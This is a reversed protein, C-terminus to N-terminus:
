KLTLLGLLVQHENFRSQDRAVVDALVLAPFGVLGLSRPAPIAAERLAGDRGRRASAGVAKAIRFEGTAVRSAAVRAANPM